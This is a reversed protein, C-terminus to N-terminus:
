LNESNLRGRGSQKVAYMAQDAERYLQKFNETNGDSVATGASITRQGMHEALREAIRDYVLHAGSLMEEVTAEADFFLAAAFEDGGMRCALDTEKVADKLSRALLTLLEDGADHGYTDNFEKFHDIDIMLLLTKKQKVLLQHEVDNQFAIHNLLGTLSDRRYLDEWYRLRLQSKDNEAMAWLRASHSESVDCIVIKTRQAKAASDYIKESYCNVFITKGDKRRLKHELYVTSSKSLQTSVLALYETREDPPILDAQSMRNDLVDKLTYGTLETFASDVEVIHDNDDLLYRSYHILYVNAAAAEVEAKQVDVPPKVVIKTQTAEQNENGQTERIMRIFESAIFPDFQSGACRRLEELADQVSIARHYPRDNTMADYADVVSIIRSLLPISERSLGNPYGNGDWREHHHLIMEAICSLKDSSMAIQYGKVVHSRVVTWEDETLKAPKNLIDLPIGIKGIDHLLCLLRLHSQESDSLGIRAGLEEGMKQTRKVHAETDSDCEQLARVLSTLTQSHNSNQDLLKKIQLAHMAEDIAAVADGSSEETVSVAFQIDGGYAVEIQEAYERMKKEEIDFCVAILVADQGRVFYTEPPTCRRISEALLRIQRDGEDIGMTTNIIGLSNIDFVGVAKKRMTRNEMAFQKFNEWKHFGTLLDTELEADTFVFLSGLLQNKRGRLPRYDCRAARERGEEKLYCQLSYANSESEISSPINCQRLFEGMPMRDRFRVPKLLQVARDNKMVLYGEYDFLVIGQGINEFVTISLGKLMANQTYAFCSWYMLMLILSYGLISFDIHPLIENIPTYLFLANSGVIAVVGLIIYTYQNRYQSPAKDHRVVLSFLMYLVMIYTFALHMIYLPKMQYGFRAFPAYTDVYHVAIEWIPNIALVVTDFAAYYRFCKNVRATFTSEDWHTFCAIFALVGVLMWDISAFYASSMISATFYDETMISVLYTIDVAAGALATYGLYAAAKENKRFCIWAFVIDFAGLILSVYIYVQFAGSNM